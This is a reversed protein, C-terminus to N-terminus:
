RTVRVTGDGGADGGAAIQAGARGGTLAPGSAVERSRDWASLTLFMALAMALIASGAAGAALAVGPARARGAPRAPKIKRTGPQRDAM